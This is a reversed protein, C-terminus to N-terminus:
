LHKSIEIILVEPVCPFLSEIQPYISKYQNTDYPITIFGGHSYLSIKNRTKKGTLLNIEYYGDVDYYQNTLYMYQLYHGIIIAEKFTVSDLDVGLIPIVLLGWRM